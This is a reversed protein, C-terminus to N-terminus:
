MPWPWSSGEGFRIYKCNLRGHDFMGWMDVVIKGECVSELKEFEPWPTTIVVVRAREVCQELTPEPRAVPDHTWVEHIRSLSDALMTGASEETIDVGVKYTLGLIAVTGDDALSSVFKALRLTQEHRCHDLADIFATPAHRSEGAFLLARADRPLCPGGWVAGPGLMMRGIRSDSGISEMVDVANAGDYGSCIWGIQNALAMRSVLATNLGIKAIEASVISMHRFAPSNIVISAYYREVASGSANDLQGILIQDPCAFDQVISGQRIFEPSYVLGFDEGARKGSVRELRDRVIGNTTGPMVTSVIVVVRYDDSQMLGRGIDSCADLVYENSFAGNSHSPTPVIVLVMESNKTADVTDTTAFLSKGSYKHVLEPVQPEM